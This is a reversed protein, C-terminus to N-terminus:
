QRKGKNSTALQWGGMIGVLIALFSISIARMMLPSMMMAADL